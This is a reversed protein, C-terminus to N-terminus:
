QYEGDIYDIVKNYPKRPLLEGSDPQYINQKRAIHRMARAPVTDDEPIYGQKKAHLWAEWIAEDNGTVASGSGKHPTGAEHCDLYGSEICLFQLANITVSHRWCHGVGESISWNAGTSSAHLPHADRQSLGRSTLDTIELDFLASHNGSNEIKKTQHNEEEHVEKERQKRAKYEEQFVQPLEEFELYSIEKNNAVTYYGKFKDEMVEQKKEQNIEGAEVKEELEEETCPVYSGPAVVYQWKSRLEGKDTPINDPLIEDKPDALYIGHGGIRSRSNVQLTQKLESKISEDDVDLLLLPDDPRGAIGVNGINKELRRKAQAITLKAEERKWSQNLKPAKSNKQVKFYFPRYGEPAKEMLKEHFVLLQAPRLEKM